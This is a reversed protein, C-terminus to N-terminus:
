NQNDPEHFHLLIPGIDEFLFGSVSSNLVDLQSKRAVIEINDSMIGPQHYLKSINISVAYSGLQFLSSNIIISYNGNGHDTFQYDSKNMIGFGGITISETANTIGVDNTTDHYHFSININSGHDVIFYNQFGSVFTHIKQINVSIQQNIQDNFPNQGTISLIYSGELLDTHNIFAIYNTSQITFNGAILSSINYELSYDLIASGNLADTISVNLIFDNQIGTTISEGNSIDTSNFLISINVPRRVLYLLVRVTANDIYFSSSTTNRALIFLEHLGPSSLPTTPGTSVNLAYYGGGLNSVSYNSTDLEATMQSNLFVLIGANSYNITTPYDPHYFQLIINGVTEMVHTSVSNNYTVLMSRRNFVAIFGSGTAKIYDQKVVEITFNYSAPKLGTTNYTITYDGSGHDVLTYQSQNLQGM